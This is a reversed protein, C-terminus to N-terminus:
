GRSAPPRKWRRAKMRVAISCGEVGFVKNGGPPIESTRAVIHRAM